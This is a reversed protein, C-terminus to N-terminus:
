GDRGTTSGQAPRLGELYGCVAECAQLMLTADRSSKGTGWIGMQSAVLLAATGEPAADPRVAGAAMGKRLAAAFTTRWRDYLADIRGRFGEDLPSMEQALNNLPCGDVFHGSEVDQGAFTRFSDQMVSLPDAAGALGGLWRRMLLPEIVKDVVAYGLDQKGAFHHFLAGKTVGAGRVIRNLSAGQFGHRYFEAFAADLIKQRTVDPQRIRNSSTM